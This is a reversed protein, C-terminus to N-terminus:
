GPPVVYSYATYRYESWARAGVSIAPAAPAAPSSPSFVIRVRVHNRGATLASPLIFEDDRWQRNSTELVPTAVGTETTADVFACTNSGALYWTGALVFPAGSKADAVYVLARQDAFGYDLKRRLLVGHNDPRIALTLESAGTTHRGTDTTAPYVETTGVHDVGLEYRSTLTDVGSADPSAYGHAAEDAADSVHLADTM